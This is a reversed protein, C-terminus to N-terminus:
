MLAQSSKEQTALQRYIQHLKVKVILVSMEMPILNEIGIYTCDVVGITTKFRYKSKWLTKAEIIENIKLPQFHLGIDAQSIISDIVSSVSRLVTIQDM